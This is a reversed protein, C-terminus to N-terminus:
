LGPRGHPRVHGARAPGRDGDCGSRSHTQRYRWLGTPRPAVLEFAGGLQEMIPRWVLWFEPWGHLLLLPKGQGYRAVNMHLDGVQIRQQRIGAAEAAALAQDLATM